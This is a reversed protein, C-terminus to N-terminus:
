YEISRQVQTAVENPSNASFRGIIVEAYYDSSGGEIFGYSPDSASGSLSPSPIQNIDGVLLVFTLGNNYYYNEIYSKISNSNSGISSVNVIETHIGMQNKWEVFPAMEDIFDGYSIILMNGRDSLYEFRTDTNTNNIFHSDYISQFERNIKNTFNDESRSKINRGNVGNEFVEVTISKYIRLTKSIPNYQFPNFVITQGRHDRFIYPDRLYALNNPYFEDKKYIDSFVYDIDSPNVSRSLNGKSPIIDIDNVDIYESEIVRISMNSEDPIILSKSLQPLEPAGEKLISTGGEVFIKTFMQNDLSIYDSYYGELSLRITSSSGSVQELSFEPEISNSSSMDNWDASFSLSIFLLLTVIM